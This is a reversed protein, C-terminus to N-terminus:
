QPYSFFTTNANQSRCINIFALCIMRELFIFRSLKYNRATTHALIAFFLCLGIIISTDLTEECFCSKKRLRLVFNFNRIEM